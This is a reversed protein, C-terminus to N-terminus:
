ASLSVVTGAVTFSVLADLVDDTVAVSVDDVILGPLGPGVGVAVPVIAGSPVVAAGDVCGPTGDGAGAVEVVEVVPV